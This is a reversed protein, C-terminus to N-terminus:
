VLLCVDHFPRLLLLLLAKILGKVLYFAGQEPHGPVAVLVAAFYSIFNLLWTENSRSGGAEITETYLPIEQILTIAAKFLSDAQPLSQNALAVQMVVVALVVVVIANADTECPQENADCHVCPV